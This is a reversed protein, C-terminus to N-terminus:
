FKRNNLLIKSSNKFIDKVNGILYSSPPGPIKNLIKRTNLFTVIQVVCYLLFLSIVAVGVAVVTIMNVQKKPSYSM